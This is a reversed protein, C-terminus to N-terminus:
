IWYSQTQCGPLMNAHHSNWLVGNARGLPHGAQQLGCPREGPSARSAAQLKKRLLYKMNKADRVEHHRWPLKPKMRIVEHIAREPATQL